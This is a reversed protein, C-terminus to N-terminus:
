ETDGSPVHIRGQIRIHMHALDGPEQSSEDAFSVRSFKVACIWAMRSGLRLGSRGLSLHGGKLVDRYSCRLILGEEEEVEDGSGGM